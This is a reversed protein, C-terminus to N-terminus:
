RRPSQKWASLRLAFEQRGDNPLQSVTEIFDQQHPQGLALRYLWRQRSLQDFRHTQQSQPLVVFLRDIKEGPCSWWPSLGSADDRFEDEAYTALVTWPSIKEGAESLARSGLRGIV